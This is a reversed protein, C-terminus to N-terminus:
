PDVATLRPQQRFVPLAEGGAQFRHPDAADIQAPELLAHQVGNTGARKLLSDRVQLDRAVDRRALVRKRRIGRGGLGQVHLSKGLTDSNSSLPVVASTSGM